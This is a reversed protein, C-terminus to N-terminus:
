KFSKVIDEIQKDCEANVFEWLLEREKEINVDDSDPLSREETYEVTYYNKNTTGVCVSARSTAKITSIYAKSTYEEM